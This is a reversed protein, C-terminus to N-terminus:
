YFGEVRYSWLDIEDSDNIKKYLKYSTWFTYLDRALSVFFVVAIGIKLSEVSINVGDEIAIYNEMWVIDIILHCLLWIFTRCCLIISLFLSTRALIKHRSVVTCALVTFTISDILSSFVTIASIPYSFASSPILTGMSMLIQSLSFTLIPHPCRM